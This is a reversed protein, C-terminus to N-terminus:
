GASGSEVFQPCKFIVIELGHANDNKIEEVSDRLNMQIVCNGNKVCLPCAGNDRTNISIKM